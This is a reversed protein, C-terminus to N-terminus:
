DLFFFGRRLRELRFVAFLDAVLEDLSNGRIDVGSRERGKEM